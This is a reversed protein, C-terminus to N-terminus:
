LQHKKCIQETLKKWDTSESLMFWHIRKDKRFWTMQRKAFRRTNRKILDVAEDFTHKGDLYHILEKYGVSDLANDSLSYGKQLLHQVEKLLGSKIMEDVRKEIRQYLLSRPWALGLFLTDFSAPVTKKKQIESIPIGSIQIVELARILRKKDHPHIREVAEADLRQLRNYLRELGNEEAEANLAERIKEDNYNGEFVGDVLSRIYLGSGGAVVPQKEKAFITYIKERGYKAYKGASFYADPNCIDLGYHPIGCMEESSPKATGIDM